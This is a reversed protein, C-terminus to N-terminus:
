ERALISRHWSDGAPVELRGARLDGARSVTLDFVPTTLDVEGSTWLDRFESRTCRRISDGDRYWVPRSDLLDLGLDAELARLQRVLSDISCGSAGAQSEDVGIM